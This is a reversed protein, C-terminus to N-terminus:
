WLDTSAGGHMCIRGGEEWLEEDYSWGEAKARWLTRASMKPWLHRELAVPRSAGDIM